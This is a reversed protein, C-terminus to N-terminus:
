RPTTSTAPNHLQEVTVVYDLSLADGSRSIRKLTFLDTGVYGSESTYIVGVSPFKKKNCEYRQNTSPFDSYAEVDTEIAVTGHSPAHTVIVTPRGPSTCDANVEAYYGFHQPIGSFAAKQVPKAATAPGGERLINVQNVPKTVCGVLVTTLVCVAAGGLYHWNRNKEM